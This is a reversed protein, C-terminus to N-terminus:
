MNPKETAINEKIEWSFYEDCLPVFTDILDNQPCQNLQLSLKIKANKM